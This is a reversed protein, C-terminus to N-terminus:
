RARLNRGILTYFRNENLVPVSARQAAEYLSDYAKVADERRIFDAFVESPANAAPQAPMIPREGMLVFDVEPGLQPAVKGGWQKIMAEIDRREEPTAIGDRNADFNGAVVFMYTKAPDYVANAVVDGQVIPNGRVESTIMATSSNKGVNIIELTAKGRPYNGEADPRIAAADSYVTFTLGIQAKQDAGINLYARKASGDVSIITADVANAESGASLQQSGQTGRLRAVQAQLALNDETMKAIQDNLGKKEANWEGQERALRQDILTKYDDIGSKNEAVARSNQEIQAALAAITKKYNDEIGKVRENEATANALAATRDANAREVESKMTAISGELDGVHAMVTKGGGKLAEFRGMSTVLQASGDGANGTVLRMSTSMEESLFGVLSKGGAKKAEAIRRRVLDNNKEAPTIIESTAEQANRLAQEADKSKTWFVATGVGFGLTATSLLFLTVGLGVGMGTRGAM